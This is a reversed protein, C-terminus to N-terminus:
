PIADVATLLATREGFTDMAGAKILSEITKRNVKSVDVRKLFDSLGKFVGHSRSVLISEM